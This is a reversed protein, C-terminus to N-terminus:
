QAAAAQPATAPTIYLKDEGYAVYLRLKRLIELGITTRGGLGDDVRGIRTGTRFDNDPDKSGTLNPYILFKANTVTVADFTLSPFTYRFM